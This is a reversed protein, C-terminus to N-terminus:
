IGLQHVATLALMEDPAQLQAEFPLRDPFLTPHAHCDILGPMVAAAHYDYVRGRGNALDRPFDDRRGVATIRGGDIQVVADHIPEAGTASILRGALVYALGRSESDQMMPRLSPTRPLPTLRM